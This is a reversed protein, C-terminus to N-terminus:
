TKKIKSCFFFGTGAVIGLSGLYRSGAKKKKKQDRSQDISTAMPLTKGCVPNPPLPPPKAHRWSFMPFGVEWGIRGTIAAPVVPNKKKARFAFFFSFLFM